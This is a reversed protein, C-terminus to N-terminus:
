GGFVLVVLTSIALSRLMDGAFAEGQEFADFIVVAIGLLTIDFRIRGVESSPQYPRPCNSVRGVLVHLCLFSGPYVYGLYLM